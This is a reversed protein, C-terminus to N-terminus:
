RQILENTDEDWCEPVMSTSFNYDEIDACLVTGNGDAVIIWENGDNYALWWGGGMEGSFKVGGNAHTGTNEDITVTVEDVSRSYREAFAERIQELDSKGEEVPETPSTTPLLTPTPTETPSSVPTPTPSSEPIVIRLGMSWWLYGGGIIVAVVLISGIILLLKKNM